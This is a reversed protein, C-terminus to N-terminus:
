ALPLQLRITAGRESAEATIAGGAAEVVRRVFALGLGTGSTKTTYFPTFIEERLEPPIGPGEDHIRVVGRRGDVTVVVTIQGTGDQAQAANQLLNVLAQQLPGLHALVQVAEAPADVRLEIQEFDPSPGLTAAASRVLAQLEVVETAQDLPRSMRLTDDLLRRMDNLRARAMAVIERREEPDAAEDILDLAGALSAVPNRIEHALTAAMRGIQALNRMQRDAPASMDGPAEVVCMVRLGDPGTWWMALQRAGLSDLPMRGRSATVLGDQLAGPFPTERLPHGQVPIALPLQLLDRAARSWSRLARRAPDIIMWAHDSSGLTPADPRPALDAAHGAEHDALVSMLEATDLPSDWVALGGGRLAQELAARPDADPQGYPVPRLALTADATEHDATPASTAPAESIIRLTCHGASARADVVQHGRSRLLERLARGLHQDSVDLCVRM